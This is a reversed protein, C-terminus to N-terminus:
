SRVVIQKTKHTDLSSLVNYEDKKQSETDEDSDNDPPSSLLPNSIWSPPYHIGPIDGVNDILPLSSGPPQKIDLSSFSATTSNVLHSSVYDRSRMEIAKEAVYESSSKETGTMTQSLILKVSLHPKLFECGPSHRRHEDIVNDTREWDQLVVHCSFCRVVDRRALMYFGAEALEEKPLIGGWYKFSQLRTAQDSYDPFKLAAIHERQTDVSLELLYNYSM